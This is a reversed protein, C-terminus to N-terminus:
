FPDDGDAIILLQVPRANMKEIATKIEYSAIVNVQEGYHRIANRAFANALSTKGAEKMGVVTLSRDYVIGEEVPPFMMEDIKHTLNKMSWDHTLRELHLLKGDMGSTMLADDM